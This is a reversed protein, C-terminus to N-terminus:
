VVESFPRYDLDFGYHRPGGTAIGERTEFLPNAARGVIALETGVEIDANTYPEGTRRDATMILDPSTVYPQDDLWTVHNENRHWIKLKRGTFDGSGEVVVTGTMYGEEDKWDREVVPGEFLVRGGLASAAAKAPNGEDAIAKRM